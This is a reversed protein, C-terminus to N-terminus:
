SIKLWSAMSMIKSVFCQFIKKDCELVYSNGNASSIAGSSPNAASRLHPLRNNPSSTRLSMPSKFEVSAALFKSVPLVNAQQDKVTDDLPSFGSRGTEVFFKVEAVVLKLHLSSSDHFM